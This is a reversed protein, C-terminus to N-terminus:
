RYYIFRCSDSFLAFFRYASSLWCFLLSDFISRFFAFSSFFAWCLVSLAFLLCLLFSSLSCGFIFLVVDSRKMPRDSQFKKRIAARLV